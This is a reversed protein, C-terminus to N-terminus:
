FSTTFRAFHIYERSESHFFFMHTRGRRLHVNDTQVSKAGVGLVDEAPGVTLAHVGRGHGHNIRRLTGRHHVGSRGITEHMPAAHDNSLVRRVAM